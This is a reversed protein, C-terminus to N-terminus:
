ITGEIDSLADALLQLAAAQPDRRGKLNEAVRLYTGAAGSVHERRLPDKHGLIRDITSAPVELALMLTAATRRLDHRHWGSTSTLEHFTKQFRNWNGIPNGEQNPFVLSRPGGETVSPLTQLLDTAAQSLPM